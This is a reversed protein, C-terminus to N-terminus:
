YSIQRDTTSKNCPAKEDFYLEKAFDLLINKDSLKTHDVNYNKKTIMKLLDRQLDFKKDTDRFTLM